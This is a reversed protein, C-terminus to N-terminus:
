NSARVAGDFSVLRAGEVESYDGCLVSDVVVCSWDPEDCIDILAQLEKRSFIQFTKM